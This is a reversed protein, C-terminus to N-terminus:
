PAAGAANLNQLFARAARELGPLAEIQRQLSQIRQETLAIDAYTRNLADSLPIEASGYEVSDSDRTGSRRLGEYESRDRQLATLDTNAEAQEQALRSRTASMEALNKGLYATVVPPFGAPFPAAHPRTRAGDDFWAKGDTFATQGEPLRLALASGDSLLWVGSWLELAGAVPPEPLPPQNEAVPGLGRLAEELRQGMEQLNGLERQDDPQWPTFELWDVWKIWREKAQASQQLGQKQREIEIAVRKVLAPDRELFLLPEGTERSAVTFVEEGLLLYAADTLSIVVQGDALVDAEPTLRYVASEEAPPQSPRSGYGYSRYYTRSGYYRRPYYRYTRPPYLTGTEDVTNGRGLSPSRYGGSRALSPPAPRYDGADGSSHALAPAGGTDGARGTGGKGYVADPLALHAVIVVVTIVTVIRLGLRMLAAPHGVWDRLKDRLLRLEDALRAPLEEVRELLREVLGPLDIAQLFRAPQDVFAEIMARTQARDLAPMLAIVRELLGAEDIPEHRAMILAARVEPPLVDDDRAPEPCPTDDGDLASWTAGSASEVPQSNDFYHLLLGSGAQSPRAAHRRAALEVPFSLCRRLQAASHLASRPEPLVLDDGLEDAAVPRAAGLVFGWDEGYGEAAFSPLAIRYPLPHLGAARQSNYISWFADPAGSPSAANVALLGDPTLLGRLETYWDVSHLAAGDLDRPVTLDQVILDYRRGRRAARRAFTRVDELHVRVRRDALSGANLAVLEERALGLMAVDYDVLDIREVRPSKLAERACLGDGGGCILVRLGRRTRRAALALGPLVLLEHYTREDRSDFQLDGDLYLALSGDRREDLLITM